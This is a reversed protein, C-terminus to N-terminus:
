LEKERIYTEKERGRKREEHKESCIVKGYFRLKGFGGIEICIRLIRDRDIHM